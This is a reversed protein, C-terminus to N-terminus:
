EVREFYRSDYPYVTLEHDSDLFAVTFDLEDSAYPSGSNSNGFRPENVTFVEVIEELAPLTNHCHKADKWTVKDGPQLNEIHKFSAAIKEREEGILPKSKVRESGMRYMCESLAAFDRSRSM